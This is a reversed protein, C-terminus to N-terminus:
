FLRAHSWILLRQVLNGIEPYTMNIFQGAYSPDSLIKIYGTLGTNFVSEGVKDVPAGVSYGRYITGDELSFLSAKRKKGELEVQENALKIVKEDLTKPSIGCLRVM